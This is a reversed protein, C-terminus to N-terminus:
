GVRFAYTEVREKVTGTVGYVVIRYDGPELYRRPILLAFTNNSGPRVADRHWIVQDGTGRIIELRYEPFERQSILSTILLISEGQVRLMVPESPGGRRGEPLLLVQEPWVLRPGALQSRSQWLMGGLVVVMAAAIATAVKWFQLVRGGEAPEDRRMRAQLLPWHRAFEQDSLYDAAGPEAGEMPFPETLTRVLDPHCVLLEHIRAEEDASLEGRTYALMKESTPLEGTRRREDAMLEQNVTRWNSKTNM